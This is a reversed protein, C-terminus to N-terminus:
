QGTLCLRSIQLAVAVESASARVGLSQLATAFQAAPTDIAATTAVREALEARGLRRLETVLEGTPGALWRSFSTPSGREILAVAEGPGAEIADASGCGTTYAGKWRGPGIHVSAGTSGGHLTRVSM